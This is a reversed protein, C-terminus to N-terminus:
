RTKTESNNEKTKLRKAEEVKEMLTDLTLVNSAYHRNWEKPYVKFFSYGLTQYYETILTMAKGADKLSVIYVDGDIPCQQMRHYEDIPTTEVKIILTDVIEKNSDLSRNYM